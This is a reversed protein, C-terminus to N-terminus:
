QLMQQYLSERCPQIQFLKKELKGQVQPNLSVPNICKIELVECEM